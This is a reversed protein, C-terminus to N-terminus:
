IIRNTMWKKRPIFVFTKWLKLGFDRHPNRTKLWIHWTKEWSPIGEGQGETAGTRCTRNTWSKGKPESALGTGMSDLGPNLNSIRGTLWPFMLKQKLILWVDVCEWQLIFQLYMFTYTM